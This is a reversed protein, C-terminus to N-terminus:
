SLLLKRISVIDEHAVLEELSSPRYKEVWPLTQRATERHALRAVAAASTTPGPAGPDAM